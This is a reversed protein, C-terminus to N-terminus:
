KKWQYRVSSGAADITADDSFTISIVPRAGQSFQVDRNEILLRMIGPGNNLHVDVSALFHLPNQPDTIQVRAFGPISPLLNLEIAVADLESDQPQTPGVIHFTRMAPITIQGSASGEQAMFTRQDSSYFAQRIHLLADLSQDASTAPRLSFQHWSNDFEYPYRIQKFLQIDYAASSKFTDLGVPPLTQLSLQRASIPAQMMFSQFAMDQTKSDALQKENEDSTLTLHGIGVMQLLDFPENESITIPLTQNFTSKDTPWFSARDGDFLELGSQQTSDVSVQRLGLGGGLAVNLQPLKAANGKNWQYLALRQNSLVSVDLSSDSAASGHILKQLNADDLWRDYIRLEDFSQSFSTVPPRGPSNSVGLGISGITGGSFWPKNFNFAVEGDVLLAAGYTQDWCLTLQHWEGPLVLIPQSTLTQGGLNGASLYLSFKGAVYSLQIYRDNDTHESPTLNLIMVSKGAPDADLRWYLSATGAQCYANGPGDYVLQSQGPVVSAADGSKGSGIQVNNDYLLESSGNAIVPASSNQFPAYLLLGSSNSQAFAITTFVIIPIAILVIKKILSNFYMM